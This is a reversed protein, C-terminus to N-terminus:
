QSEAELEVQDGWATFGHHQKRAFIDIRPTQTKSKIIEYFESPKESHIGTKANFATPIAKGRFPINFEGSYGFIALESNRFIGQM